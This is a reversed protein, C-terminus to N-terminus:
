ASGKYYKTRAEVAHAFLRVLYLDAARLSQGTAGWYLDTIEQDTLETPSTSPAAVIHKPCSNCWYRSNDGCVIDKDPCVRVVQSTNPAIKIEKDSM